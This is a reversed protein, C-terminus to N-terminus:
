ITYTGPRYLALNEPNSFWQATIRLGKRFGDLGGYSPNWGTLKRLKSNDGFLRNVESGLPRLRNEDTSITISVNMVEAILSVLEGISIEFNSSQPSSLSLKARRM